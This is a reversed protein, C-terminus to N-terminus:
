RRYTVAKHNPDNCGDTSIKPRRAYETARELVSAASKLARRSVERHKM